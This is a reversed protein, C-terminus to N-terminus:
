RFDNWPLERGLFKQLNIVETQFIEKLKERDEFEMDPKKTQKVFVSDGIKQRYITPVVKTAVKRFTSNELLRKSLVNKPVRYSGKPKEVLSIRQDVGLFKALSEITKDINKIYEEFIIVKIKDESFYKQYNKIHKTYFGPQLINYIFFVGNQIEMKDHEIVESFERKDNTMFKYSLYVSHAVEVPNRLSIIIKSDPFNKKIDKPAHPCFLYVSSAEGLAKYKRDNKFLDLYKQKEYIMSPRKFDEPVDLRAFYYPENLKSIFIDRYEDLYYSINTTGCKPGGVIFFNPGLM